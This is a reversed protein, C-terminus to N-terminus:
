SSINTWQISKVLNDLVFFNSVDGFIVMSLFKGPATPIPIYYIQGKEGGVLEVNIEKVKQGAVDIQKENVFKAPYDSPQEYVDNAVITAEIKNNGVPFVSKGAAKAEDYNFLQLYGNGSTDGLTNVGLHWEKPFTFKLGIGRSTYLMQGDKDSSVMGVIENSTNLIDKNRDEFPVPNKKSWFFLLISAVIILSLVIIINKVKM